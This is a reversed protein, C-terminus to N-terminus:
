FLFRMNTYIAFRGYYTLNLWSTALSSLDFDGSQSSLDLTTPEVEPWALLKEDASQYYFFWIDRTGIFLLRYHCYYLHHVQITMVQSSDTHYGSFFCLLWARFCSTSQFSYPHQVNQIYLLYSPSSRGLWSFIGFVSSWHAGEELTSLYAQEGLWTLWNNKV